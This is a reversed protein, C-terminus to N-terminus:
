PSHTAPAVPSAFGLYARASAQSQMAMVMLALDALNTDDTLGRGPMFDALALLVTDVRETSAIARQSISAARGAMGSRNLVVQAYNALWVLCIRRTFFDDFEGATKRPDGGPPRNGRAERSHERVNHDVLHLVTLLGVADQAADLADDLACSQNLLGVLSLADCLCETALTGTESIRTLAPASIEQGGPEPPQGTRYTDRLKRLLMDRADAPLAAVVVHALEHGVIFSHQIGSRSLFDAEAAPAPFPPLREREAAYARYSSRCFASFGFEGILYFREAYLDDFERVLDPDQQAAMDAIRSWRHTLRLLHQDIVIHPGTVTTFSYPQARPTRM